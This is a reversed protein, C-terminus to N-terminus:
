IDVVSMGFQFNGCNPLIPHRDCSDILPRILPAHHEDTVVTVMACLRSGLLTRGGQEYPSVVLTLYKGFHDSPIAVIQPLRSQFTASVAKLYANHITPDKLALTGNARFLQPEQSILQEFAHNLELIHGRGDILLKAFSSGHIQREVNSQFNQSLGAQQIQLCQALPKQIANLVELVKQCDTLTGDFHLNIGVWGGGPTDYLRAYANDTIDLPQLWEWFESNVGLTSGKQQSLLLPANGSCNPEFRDWDDFPQCYDLYPDLGIEGDYGRVFEHEWPADDLLLHGAQDREAIVLHPVGSLSRIDDLVTAWHNPQLLADPLSSIIQDIQRQM